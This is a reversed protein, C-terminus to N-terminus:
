FRPMRLVMIGKEIAGDRSFQPRIIGPNRLFRFLWEPQVREGERILTPPLGHRARYDSNWVDAGRGMLYPVLLNSLYGGYPMSASIVDPGKAPLERVTEGARISQDAPLSDEFRLAQSLFVSLQDGDTAGIGHMRIRDAPQPGGAWANHDPFFFDKS